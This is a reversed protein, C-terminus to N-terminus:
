CQFSMIKYGLWAGSQPAARPNKKLGTSTWVKHGLWTIALTLESTLWIFTTFM